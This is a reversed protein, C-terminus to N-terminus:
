GDFSSAFDKSDTAVLHRVLVLVDVFRNKEMQFRYDLCRNIIPFLVLTNDREPTSNSEEYRAARKIDLRVMCPVPKTYGRNFIEWKVDLEVREV